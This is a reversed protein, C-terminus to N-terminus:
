WRFAAFLLLALGVTLQLWFGFDFHGARYYLATSGVLGLGLVANVIRGAPTAPERRTWWSMWRRSTSKPPGAIKM